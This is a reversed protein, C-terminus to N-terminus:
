RKQSKAFAPKTGPAILVRHTMLDTCPLNKLDEGNLHRYTYLLRLVRIRNERTTILPRLVPELGLSEAWGELVRDEVDEMQRRFVRRDPFPKRPKDYANIPAEMLMPIPTGSVCFSSSLGPFSVSHELIRSEAPRPESFDINRQSPNIEKVPHDRALLKYDQQPSRM